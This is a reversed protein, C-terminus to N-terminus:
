IYPHVHDDEGDFHVLKAEFDNCVETFINQLDSLIEKTFLHQCINCSGRSRAIRSKFWDTSWIRYIKWGLNVLIEQRLRDRDRASRGLHYSAGDCEIGILFTGPKAPHRVGLDIFFGAVLVQPVVEYGNEKLVAGISREFSSTM